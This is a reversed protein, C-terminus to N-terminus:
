KWNLILRTYYLSDLSERGALPRSNYQNAFGLRLKWFAGSIPVEVATDQVFRYDAFDNFSPLYQLGTVITAYKNLVYSHDLATSLDSSCM